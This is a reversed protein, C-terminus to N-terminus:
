LEPVLDSPPPVLLGELSAGAAAVGDGEVPPAAGLWAGLLFGSELVQVQKEIEIERHHPCWEGAGEEQSRFSDPASGHATQKNRFSNARRRGPVSSKNRYPEM